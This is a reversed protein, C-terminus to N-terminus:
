KAPSLPFPFLNRLPPGLFIGLLQLFKFGGLKENGVVKLLLKKLCIKLKTCIQFQANYSLIVMANQYRYIYKLCQNFARGAIVLTM